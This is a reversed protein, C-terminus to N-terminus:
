TRSLLRRLYSLPGAPGNPAPAEAPWVDRRSSISYYIWQRLGKIRKIPTPGHFGTNCNLFLVGTNHRPRFAKALRPKHPRRDNRFGEDVYLGFSGGEMEQEDADCFFLVGGVVRRPWDVHVGKDYSADTAQFDFRNFLKSPPYDTSLPTRETEARSEPYQELSFSEPDILCRHRRMDAAFTRLVERVFAESTFRARIEAWGPSAVLADYGEEGLYLDRGIRGMARPPMDPFRAKRYTAEDILPDLVIHPTPEAFYQM